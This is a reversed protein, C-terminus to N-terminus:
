RHITELRKRYRKDRVHVYVQVLAVFSLLALLPYVFYLPSRKICEDGSCFVRADMGLEYILYAVWAAAAAWATRSSSWLALSAFLIIPVGILLPHDILLYLFEPLEPM